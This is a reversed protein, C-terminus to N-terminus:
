DDLSLEAALFFFSLFGVVACSAATRVSASREWSAGVGAEEGLRLAKLLRAEKM